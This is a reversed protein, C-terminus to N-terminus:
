THIYSGQLSHREATTPRLRLNIRLHLPKQLHLALLSPELRIHVGEGVKTPLLTHVLNPWAHVSSCFLAECVTYLPKDISCVKNDIPQFIKSFLGASDVWIDNHIDRQCIIYTMFCLKNQANWTINIGLYTASQPNCDHCQQPCNKTARKILSAHNAGDRVMGATSAWQPVLSTRKLTGKYVSYGDFLMRLNISETNFHYVLLLFFDFQARYNRWVLKKAEFFSKLHRMQWIGMFILIVTQGLSWWLVRANTSDSVQRFREERVQFCFTVSLRFTHNVPLWFM